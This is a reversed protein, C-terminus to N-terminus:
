HVDEVGDVCGEKTYLLKRPTCGDNTDFIVQIYMSWVMIYVHNISYGCGKELGLWGIFNVKLTKGTCSTCM